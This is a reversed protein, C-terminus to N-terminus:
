IHQLNICWSFCYVSPLKFWYMHSLHIFSHSFVKDGDVCRLFSLRLSILYGTSDELAVARGRGKGGKLWENM